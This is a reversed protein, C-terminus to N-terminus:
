GGQTTTTSKKSLEDAIYECATLRIVWHTIDPDALITVPDVKFMYGIAAATKIATMGGAADRM